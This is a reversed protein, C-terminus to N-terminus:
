GIACAALMEMPTPPDLEVLTGTKMSALSSGARENPSEMVMVTLEGRDGVSITLHYSCNRGGPLPRGWVMVNQAPPMASGGGGMPKSTVTVRSEQYDIALSLVGGEPVVVDTLPTFGCLELIEPDVEPLAM